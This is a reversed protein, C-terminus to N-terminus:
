ERIFENTEPNYVGSLDANDKTVEALKRLEYNLTGEEMSRMEAKYIYEIKLTIQADNSFINLENGQTDTLTFQISTITQKGVLFRHAEAPKYFIMYGFPVNNDIRVIADDTLGSSNLNNVSINKFKLFIFRTGTFNVCSPMTIHFSPNVASSLLVDGTQVLNNNFDKQFGLLDVCTTPYSDNNIIEFPYNCFWKVKAQTPQYVGYLSFQELANPLIKENVVNIFEDASYVRDGDEDAVTVTFFKSFTPISFSLQNNTSGVNPSINPIQADQISLLMKCNTPLQVPTQLNYHYIGEGDISKYVSNQSNLFIVQSSYPTDLSYFASM